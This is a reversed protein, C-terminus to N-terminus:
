VIDMTEPETRTTQEVMPKAGASTKRPPPPSNGLAWELAVRCEAQDVFMLEDVEEETIRPECRRILLYLLYSNGEFSNRAAIVKRGGSKWSYWGMQFEHAYLSRLRSAEFWDGSNEADTAAARAGNRVWREFQSKIAAECTSVTHEPKGAILLQFGSQRPDPPNDAAAGLAETYGLHDSNPM